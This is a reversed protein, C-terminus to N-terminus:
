RRSIILFPAIIEEQENDTAVLDDDEVETPVTLPLEVSFAGIEDAYALLARAGNRLIESLPDAFTGPQALPFVNSDTM